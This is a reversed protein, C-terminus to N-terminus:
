ASVAISGALSKRCAHFQSQIVLIDACSTPSSISGLQSRSFSTTSFNSMARFCTWGNRLFSMICWDSSIRIEVPPDDHGHQRDPIHPQRSQICGGSRSSRRTAFYPRRSAQHHRGLRPSSKKWCSQLQWSSRRLGWLQCGVMRRRALMRKM